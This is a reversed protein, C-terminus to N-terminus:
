VVRGHEDELSKLAIIVAATREDPFNSQHGNTEAHEVALDRLGESTVGYKHLLIAASKAPDYTYATDIIKQALFYDVRAKM